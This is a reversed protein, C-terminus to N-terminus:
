KCGERIRRAVDELMEATALDAPGLFVQVRQYGDARRKEVRGLDKSYVQAILEDGYRHQGEAVTLSVPGDIHLKREQHTAEGRGNAVRREWMWFTIGHAMDGRRTDVRHSWGSV